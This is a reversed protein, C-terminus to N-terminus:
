LLLGMQLLAIDRGGLRVARERRGEHRFGASEYLAVAARNTEFVTLSLRRVVRSRRCEEVAVELLASGVGQRRWEARVSMGLQVDHRTKAFPTGILQLTGVIEPSAAVLLLGNPARDAHRIQGLILEPSEVLEDPEPIDHEPERGVVARRHALVAEADAPAASRVEFRRGDRTRYPRPRARM